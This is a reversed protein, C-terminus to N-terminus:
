LLTIRNPSEVVTRSHKGGSQEAEVSGVVTALTLVSESPMMAVTRTLRVDAITKSAHRQHRQEDESSSCCTARAEYIGGAVWAQRGNIAVKEGLKLANLIVLM